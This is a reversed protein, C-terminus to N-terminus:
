AGEAEIIVNIDAELGHDFQLKVPHEGVQKIPEKLRIHSAEVEFGMDAIAQKISHKDIAGYLTGTENDVKARITVNLGDMEEVKQQVVVLERTTDLEQQRMQEDLEDLASYTALRALGKSILHNRAYGDPVSKVEGKRGCNKVDQLLIVKMIKIIYIVSILKIIACKM